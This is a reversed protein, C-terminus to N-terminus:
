IFSIAGQDPVDMTCSQEGNHQTKIVFCINMERAGVTIGGSWSESNVKGTCIRISHYM